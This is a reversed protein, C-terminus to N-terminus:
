AADKPQVTHQDVFDGATIECLYLLAVRVPAGVCLAATEAGMALAGCGIAAFYAGGLATVFCLCRCVGGVLQLHMMWSLRRRVKPIRLSRPLSPAM